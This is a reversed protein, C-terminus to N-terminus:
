DEQVAGLTAAARVRNAGRPRNIASTLRANFEDSNAMLLDALTEANRRAIMDDFGKALQGPIGPINMGGRVLNSGVNGGRLQQQFEQNFATESGARARQGTAQLVEVLQAMPDSPMAQPANPNLPPFALPSPPPATADIAGMVTRRQEPNGFARAAFNAGAFQNDGTALAQQAEMAQRALHQRVLPGGVTPDIQGMLGLAQATEAAQGEFPQAPFLAETQGVLNPRVDSQSALVGIPGRALPDVFAARGTAGTQLAMRYDPSAQAAIEKAIEASEGRQASLTRNAQTNGIAPTAAEELQDMQQIVRNITSLDNPPAPALAALEPQGSLQRSAAQYTPDSNLFAMAGEDVTQGPLAEYFPNASENVRRNMRRLVGGAAAQAQGALMSPEVSPGLRDLESAIAQQVQAPRQGFMPAMRSTQGEIVRQLRSLGTGGNTVQQLAEANTLDVGMVRARQRLAAAMQLQQPTVGEAAGRLAIDAGGRIGTFAGVGFGGGVGGLLRAFNEADTDPRGGNMGRAIQGASESAIAPVLWSALKTGTGGPTVAGPAFEAVTRAFEGQPTQPQYYDYGIYDRVGQNMQEGTPGVFGFGAVYDGPRTGPGGMMQGITGQMGVLGTVGEFAGTPISKGIDTGVDANEEVFLGPRIEQTGPGGAGPRADAMMRHVEGNGLKVYMGANLYARDEAPLTNLDIPDGRTGQAGFVNRNARAEEEGITDIPPPTATAPAALPVGTAEFGPRMTPYIANDGADQQPNFGVSAYFEGLPVDSYFRGHIANALTMDDMDDYEPFRERVQDMTMKQEQPM